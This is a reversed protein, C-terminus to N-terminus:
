WTVVLSFAECPPRTLPRAQFHCEDSQRYELPWLQHLLLIFHNTFGYYWLKSCGDSGRLWYHLSPPREARVPWGQTGREGTFNPFPDAWWVEQVPQPPPSRSVLVGHGSTPCANPWCFSCWGGRWPTAEPGEEAGCLGVCPWCPWAPLLGVVVRSNLNHEVLKWVGTTWRFRIWHSYELSTKIVCVRSLYFYKPYCTLYTYLM